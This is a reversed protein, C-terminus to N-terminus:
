KFFEEFGPICKPQYLRLKRDYYFQNSPPKIDYQVISTKSVRHKPFFSVAYKKYYRSQENYPYKLLRRCVPFVRDAVENCGDKMTTYDIVQSFAGTLVDVLNVVHVYEPCESEKSICSAVQTVEKNRVRINSERKNIRYPAHFLFPNNAELDRKESVIQVIEVDVSESDFFFRCASFLGMEFFRNYIRFDRNQGSSSPGFFQYDINPLNIGFFYFWMNDYLENVFLKTWNVATSTKTSGSSRSTL